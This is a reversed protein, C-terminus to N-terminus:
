IRTDQSWDLAKKVFALLGAVILVVFILLNRLFNAQQEQRQQERIYERLQEYERQEEELIDLTRNFMQTFQQRTLNEQQVVTEALKTYRQPSRNAYQKIARLEPDTLTVNSKPTKEIIKTKTREKVVTGRCILNNSSGDECVEFYLERLREEDSVENEKYDKYPVFVSLNVTHREFNEGSVQLGRIYTQNTAATANGEPKPLSINFEFIKDEGAPIDVGSERFEIDEGQLTVNRASANGNNQVAIVSNDVEGFELQFDSKFVDVEVDTGPWDADVLVDIEPGDRSVWEGSSNTQNGTSNSQNWASYSTSLTENYLGPQSVQLSANVSTSSSENIDFSNRTWNLWETDEITVNQVSRNEDTNTFTFEYSYNGDVTVSKNLSGPNVEVEAAAFGTFLITLVLLASIRRIVTVTSTM